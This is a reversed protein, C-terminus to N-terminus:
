CSRYVEQGVRSFAQLESPESLCILLSYNTLLLYYTSLAGVLVAKGSDTIGFCARLKEHTTRDVREDRNQPEDM